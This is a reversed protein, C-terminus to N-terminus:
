GTLYQDADKVVVLLTATFSLLSQWNVEEQELMRRVLGVCEQPSFLLLLQFIDCVVMLNVVYLGVYLISLASSTWSFTM